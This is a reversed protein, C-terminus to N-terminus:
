GPAPWTASCTPQPHRLGQLQGQQGQLHSGLPAPRGWTAPLRSGSGPLQTGAQPGRRGGERRGAPWGQQHPGGAVVLPGPLQQDALSHHGSLAEDARHRRLQRRRPLPHHRLARRPHVERPAPTVRRGQGVLEAPGHQAQSHSHIAAPGNPGPSAADRLGFQPQRHPGPLVLRGHLDHAAAQVVHLTVALGLGWPRQQLRGEDARADDTDGGLERQPLLQQTGEPAAELQVGPGLQGVARAKTLPDRGQQVGVGEAKSM